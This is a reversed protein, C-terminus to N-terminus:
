RPLGTGPETELVCIEMPDDGNEDILMLSELNCARATEPCKKIMERIDDSKQTNEQIESIENMKGVNGILSCELLYGEVSLDELTPDTNREVKTQLAERIPPNRTRINEKLKSISKVSNSQRLPEKPKKVSNSKRSKVSKM